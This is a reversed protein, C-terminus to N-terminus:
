SYEDACDNIVQFEDAIAFNAESAKIIENLSTLLIPAFIIWLCRSCVYFGAPGVGKDRLWITVFIGGAIFIGYVIM